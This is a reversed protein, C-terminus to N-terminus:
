ECIVSDRLKLHLNKTDWNTRVEIPGSVESFRSSAEFPEWKGGFYPYQHDKKFEYDQVINSYNEYCYLLYQGTPLEEFRFKNNKLLDYNKIQYTHKFNNEINEAVVIISNISDPFEVEGYIGGFGKEIAEIDDKEEIDDKKLKMNYIVISDILTNESLDFINNNDIHLRDSYFLELTDIPIICRTSYDLIENFNDSGLIRKPSSYQTKLYIKISDRLIYFTSDPRTYKIPESFRLDWDLRNEQEYIRKSKEILPADYDDISPVIFDFSNTNYTEFANFLQLTVTASDGAINQNNIFSYYGEMFVDKRNRIKTSNPPALMYEVWYQNIFNIGQIEEKIIPKAIFLSAFAKNTESSLNIDNSLISYSKSRFDTSIDILGGGKISVLGIRYDGDDLAEFKFNLDVDSEVKKILTFQDNLLKYLGVEYYPLPKKKEDSSTLLFHTIARTDIIDGNIENSPISDSSSLFVNIPFELSNKQYDRLSRGIYVDILFDSNWNLKPEIIVKKGRVKIIFDNHNIKIAENASIPDIQEDFTLIIKENLAINTSFNSPHSSVLKPPASDIPGGSIPGQVACASIMFILITYSLIKM